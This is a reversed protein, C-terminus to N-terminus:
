SSFVFPSQHRREERERAKQAPSFSADCRRTVIPSLWNPGGGGGGRAEGGMGLSLSLHRRGLSFSLNSKACPPIILSRPSEIALDVYHTHTTHEQLLDIKSHCGKLSFFREFHKDFEPFCAGNLDERKKGKLFHPTFGCCPPLPHPHSAMLMAATM